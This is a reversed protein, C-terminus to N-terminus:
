FYTKIMVQGRAGAQGGSGGGSPISGPNCTQSIQNSLPSNEFSTGKLQGIKQSLSGLSDYIQQTQPNM